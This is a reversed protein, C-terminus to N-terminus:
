RLWDCMEESWTTNKSVGVGSNSSYDTGNVLGDDKNARDGKVIVWGGGSVYARRLFRVHGECIQISLM